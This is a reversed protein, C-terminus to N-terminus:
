CWRDDELCKAKFWDLSIQNKTTISEYFKTDNYYEKAPFLRRFNGEYLHERFAERMQYRDNENVCPMCLRCNKHECSRHCEYKLCSKIDVAINKRNAIMVDLDNFRSMFEFYSGGGVMKVTNYILQEYIIANIEYRKHAPTLNPSMNVEMVYPTLNEDFIFDFRVLEFFHHTSYNMAKAKKIIRYETNLSIKVIADDIKKWLEKVNFGKKSIYNEFISKFPHKFMEFSKEFTPMDYPPHCGQRVVYKDRNEPDFPYYKERCFRFLVDADFRYVRVPNFSTILVFIGFDFAHGDILFPKDMFQQYFVDSNDYLVDKAEILYVGRNYVNKEVLKAKPNDTLFKQFEKKDQPLVFSPLIYKLHANIENMYSKSALASIGPFHNVKQEQRLPNNSINFFHNNSKEEYHSFPSEISWLFDWDENHSVNAFEYQMSNFVRDMTRLHGGQHWVELVVNWYKLTNVKKIKVLSESEVVNQLENNGPNFIIASLIALLVIIISALIIIVYNSSSFSKKNGRKNNKNSIM